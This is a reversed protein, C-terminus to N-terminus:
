KVPEIQEAMWVSGMGGEGIQQLPKYKDAIVAGVAEAAVYAATTPGAAPAAGTRVPEPQDLMPQSQFHADLLQHIRARLDPRGACERDLLAAREAPDATAIAAAFLDLENM